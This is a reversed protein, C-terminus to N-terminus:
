VVAKISFSDIINRRILTSRVKPNVRATILRLTKIKAM